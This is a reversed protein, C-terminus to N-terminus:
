RPQIVYIPRFYVRRFGARLINRYSPNPCSPTEEATEITLRDCGLARADEIRRALLASQAGRGRYAPLTTDIGLWAVRDEVYLAGTGVPKEGAYAIYHRWRNRGVVAAHGTRLLASLGLVDGAIRAFESAEAGTAQEIRLLTNTAPASEASRIFKVEGGAVRLGEDSLWQHLGTPQAAPSLQVAFDSIGADRYLQVLRKVADRGAPERLGLGIVRRYTTRHDERSVLAIASGIIDVRANWAKALDAPLARFLDAWANAEGFEVVAALRRSAHSEQTM